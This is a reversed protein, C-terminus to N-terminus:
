ESPARGSGRSKGLVTKEEVGRELFISKNVTIKTKRKKTKARRSRGSNQKECKTNEPSSRRLSKKRSALLYRSVSPVVIKKDERSERFANKLGGSLESRCSTKEKQPVREVNKKTTTNTKKRRAFMEQLNRGGCVGRHTGRTERRRGRWVGGVRPCLHDRAPAGLQCRQCVHRANMSSIHEEVCRATNLFPLQQLM